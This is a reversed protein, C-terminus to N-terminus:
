PTGGGGGGGKKAKKAAAKQARTIARNVDKMREDVLKPDFSPTKQYSELNSKATNLRQMTDPMGPYPDSDLYLLSLNYYAPGYNADLQLAQKYSREAQQILQTRDNSGSPYDGSRGRYASGLSTLTVADNRHFQNVLREFTQQAENYQKNQLQHVGVDVLASAFNPDIEIAKKFALVAQEPRATKDYVLGYVYYINANNKASQRKFVDDLVLESTDYQKKHYLAFAVYAAADVSAADFKLAEKAERLAADGDPVPQNLSARANNLHRDVEAKAAAPDPDQNPFVIPPESTGGAGNPDGAAGVANGGGNKGANNGGGTGAPFDPTGTDQMSQSDASGKSKPTTDPKKNGGGCAALACVLVVGFRSMRSYVRSRASRDSTSAVQIVCSM